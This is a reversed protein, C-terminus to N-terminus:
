IVGFLILSIVQNKPKILLLIETMHLYWIFRKNSTLTKLIESFTKM